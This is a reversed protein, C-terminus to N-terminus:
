KLLRKPLTITTTIGVSKSSPVSDQETLIQRVLEKSYGRTKHKAVLREWAFAVAKDINRFDAIPSNITACANDLLKTYSPTWYSFGM